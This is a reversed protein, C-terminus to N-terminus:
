RTMELFNVWSDKELKKVEEHMGLLKYIRTANIFCSVADGRANMGMLFEAMEVWKRAAAEDDSSVFHNIEQYYGHILKGQQTRIEDAKEIDRRIDDLTRESM